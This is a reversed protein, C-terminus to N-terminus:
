RECPRGALVSKATAVTQPDTSSAMRNLEAICSDRVIAANHSQVFRDIAVGTPMGVILGGVFIGAVLAPFPIRLLVPEFTSM